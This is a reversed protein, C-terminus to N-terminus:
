FFLPDQVFLVDSPDATAYDTYHIPQSSSSEQNLDPRSCSMKERRWVRWVSDPTRGAGYETLVKLYLAAPAHSQSSREM